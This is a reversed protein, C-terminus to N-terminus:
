GDAEFLGRYAPDRWLEPHTGMARIRGADLWVVLEARSATSARHAVVLRTRDSLAESLVRGIHHETVTDLSGAVDDLVILRGAHAFTRALGVRQREGGSMPAQALPTAYADPLRRIFPDARAARAAAVVEEDSAAREGFAIADAVTDGLLVPREFGYGIERRLEAHSLTRLPVGDLLVDGEDPDLLRCALAGLLSKGAGSPGVIAVMAGAPVDLDLADLTPRDGSRVTVGRLELRGRGPPLVATGHVVAPEDLIEAIRAGAARARALRMVTGSIGGLASAFFVYQGAALLQGASIRGESLLFGAVALVAVELLALILVDQTTIRTQARWMDLGHRRLEPLPALVRDVERDVTGAAAITRSGSIAEALRGAIRGQVTLYRTALVSADRAFIRVFVFLVPLGSLFTICLWPDILALAVTGGLGTLLNVAVGVAEPGMGAADDANGTVRAALEGSALEDADGTGRALAHRMTTHRMWATTRAGAWGTALDTIADAVVILALLGACWGLWVGASGETTLEDVARGFVAPLALEAAAIVLSTIGLVVLWPGAQRAARVLLRDASRYGQRGFPEQATDQQVKM